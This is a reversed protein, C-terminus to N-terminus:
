GGEEEGSVEVFLQELDQTHWANDEIALTHLCDSMAQWPLCTSFCITAACFQQPQVSTSEPNLRPLPLPRSAVPFSVLSQHSAPAALFGLVM